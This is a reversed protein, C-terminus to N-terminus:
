GQVACRGNSVDAACGTWLSINSTTSCGGQGHGQSGVLAVLSMVGVPKISDAHSQWMFRMRSCLMMLMNCLVQQVVVESSNCCPGCCKSALVTQLRMMHSLAVM